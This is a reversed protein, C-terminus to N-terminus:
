HGNLDQTPGLPQQNTTNRGQDQRYDSVDALVPPQCQNRLQVYYQRSKRLESLELLKARKNNVDTESVMGATIAAIAQDTLAIMSAPDTALTM